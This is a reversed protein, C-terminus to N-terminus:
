QNSHLHLPLPYSYDPENVFEKGAKGFSVTFCNRRWHVVESYTAELTNSFDAASHTGWTFIPKSTPVPSPLQTSSDNETSTPRDLDLTQFLDNSTFTSIDPTTAASVTTSAAATTPPPGVTAPPANIQASATSPKQTSSSNICSGLKSPLCNACPKGAKVCACGKCSGTRNCKCCPM